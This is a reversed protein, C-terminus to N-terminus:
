GLPVIRYAISVESTIGYYTYRFIIRGETGVDGTFLSGVADNTTLTFPQPQSDINKQILVEVNTSYNYLTTFPDLGNSFKLITNTSNKIKQGSLINLVTDENIISTVNESLGDTALISIKQIILSSKNDIVEFPIDAYMTKLGAPTYAVRLIGRSYLTFHYESNVKYHELYKGVDYLPNGEEDVEIPGVILNSINVGEPIVYYSYKTDSEPLNFNVRVKKGLAEYEFYSNSNNTLVGSANTNFLQEGAIFRFPNSTTVSATSRGNIQTIRPNYNVAEVKFERIAEYTINYRKYIIKLFGTQNENGFSEHYLLTDGTNTPIQTYTGEANLKIWYEFNNPNGTLNVAGYYGNANLFRIQSNSTLDIPKGQEIIIEKDSDLYLLSNIKYIEAPHELEVVIYDIITEYWIGNIPSYIKVIGSQGNKFDNTPANTKDKIYEDVLVLGGSDNKYIQIISNTPVTISTYYNPEYDYYLQLASSTTTLKEGAYFEFASNIKNYRNNIYYAFSKNKVVTQQGSGLPLDIVETEIEIDNNIIVSYTKNNEIGNRTFEFILTNSDLTYNIKFVAGNSNGQTLTAFLETSKGSTDAILFRIRPIENKYLEITNDFPSIVRNNIQIIAYDKVVFPMEGIYYENENINYKMQLIGSTIGSISQYNGSDYFKGFEYDKGIEVYQGNSAKIYYKFSSNPSSTEYVTVLKNNKEYSLGLYNDSSSLKENTLFVFPEATSANRNNIRTIFAQNIIPNESIIKYNLTTSYVFGNATYRIYLVGTSNVAGTFKLLNGTIYEGSLTFSYTLSNFHNYGNIVTKSYDSNSTKYYFQNLINKDLTSNQKFEFIQNEETKQIGNIMRVTLSYDLQNNIVVYPIVVTHTVNFQTAVIKLYKVLGNQYIFNDPSEPNIEDFPGSPSNGVFFKMFKDEKDSKGDHKYDVTQNYVRTTTGLPNYYVLSTGNGFPITEGLYFEFATGQTYNRNNIILSDVIENESPGRKSIVKYPIADTVYIMKGSNTYGSSGSYWTDVIYKFYLEGTENEVFDYNVISKNLDIERKTFQGEGYKKIYVEFDIIATQSTRYTKAYNNNADFYYPKQVSSDWNLSTTNLYKDQNVGSLLYQIYTYSNNLNIKEGEFFYFNQGIVNDRGNIRVITASEYEVVQYYLTTKAYKMWGQPKYYFDTHRTIGDGTTSSTDFEEFILNTLDANTGEGGYPTFRTYSSLSITEGVTFIFPNEQTGYGKTERNNILSFSMDKINSVSYDLTIPLYTIDQSIDINDKVLLGNSDKHYGKSVELTFTEGGNNNLDLDKLLYVLFLDTSAGSSGAKQKAKLRIKVQDSVAPYEDNESVYYDEKYAITIDNLTLYDLINPEDEITFFSNDIEFDYNFNMINQTVDETDVISKKIYETPVDSFTTTKSIIEENNYLATITVEIIGKQTEANINTFLESLMKYQELSYRKDIHWEKITLKTHKLDYDQSDPILKFETTEVNQEFGIQNEELLIVRQGNITFEKYHSYIKESKTFYTTKRQNDLITIVPASGQEGGITIDKVEPKFKYNGGTDPDYLSYEGIFIDERSIPVNPAFVTEGLFFDARVGAIQNASLYVNKDGITIKYQIDDQDLLTSSSDFLKSAINEFQLNYGDLSVSLDKPSYYSLSKEGVIGEDDYLKVKVNVIGNDNEKYDFRASTSVIKQKTIPDIVHPNVSLTFPRYKVNGETVEDEFVLDVKIESDLDKDKAIKVNNAVSPNSSILTPSLVQDVSGVFGLKEKSFLIIKSNSTVSTFAGAEMYKVTYPVIINPLINVGQSTNAPISVIGDSFVIHEIAGTGSRFTLFDSIYLTKSPHFQNLHNFLKEKQSLTFSNLKSLISVPTQSDFKDLINNFGNVSIITRLASITTALESGGTDLFLYGPIFEEISNGTEGDDAFVGLGFLGTELESAKALVIQKKSKNYWYSYGDAASRPIFDYIGGAKENIIARIDPAELYNTNEIEIDLTTALIKNMNAVDTRDNSLKAKDIYGTISPILVAALIGIIAIVIILEVLTFGKKFTKRSM